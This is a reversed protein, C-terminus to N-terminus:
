DVLNYYIDNNKYYDSEVYWNYWDRTEHYLKGVSEKQVPNVKIIEKIIEFVVRDSGYELSLHFLFNIIKDGMNLLKQVNPHKMKHYMTSM